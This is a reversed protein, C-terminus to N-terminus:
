AAQLGLALDLGRRAQGELEVAAAKVGGGFGCRKGLRALGVRSDLETIEVQLGVEPIQRGAQRKAQLARQEVGVYLDGEFLRGGGCHLNGAGHRGRLHPQLFRCAPSRWLQQGEVAQLEREVVHPRQLLDDVNGPHLQGRRVQM